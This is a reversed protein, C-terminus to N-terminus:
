DPIQNYLNRVAEVDVKDTPEAPPTDAPKAVPQTEDGPKKNLKAVEATLDAIQKDKDTIKKDKEAINAATLADEATKKDANAKDIADNLIKVQAETLEVKDNKVEIGEVNLLANISVYTKNMESTTKNQSNFFDKMGALVGAIIGKDNTTPLSPAGTNTPFTPVPLGAVNLLNIVEPNAANAPQITADEFIEDVFGWEKAQEATLWKGEKMLNLIDAVPKGSKKTFMKALTLTITASNNKTKQLEAIAAEIEDENMYGWTDVWSLAKHIFYMSNAHMRINKAGLTLVTAASANFAFLECTVNGHAEFQAAIDIADDVNGGLSNVRVIVKDKGQIHNKVHRKSNYWDGIYGDIEIDYKKTAM